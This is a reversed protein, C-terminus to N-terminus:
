QVTVSPSKHFLWAVSSSQVLDGEVESESEPGVDTRKELSSHPQSFLQDSHFGAHREQCLQLEMSLDVQRKM